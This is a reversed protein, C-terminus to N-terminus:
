FEYFLLQYLRIWFYVLCKYLWYFYFMLFDLYTVQFFIWHYFIPERCLERCICTEAFNIEPVINNKKLILCHCFISKRWSKFYGAFFFRSINIVCIYTNISEKSKLPSCFAHVAMSWASVVVPSTGLCFSSNFFLFVKRSSDRKLLTAPM